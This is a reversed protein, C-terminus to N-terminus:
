GRTSQVEYDRPSVVMKRLRLTAPERLGSPRGPGSSPVSFMAVTVLFLQDTARPKAM